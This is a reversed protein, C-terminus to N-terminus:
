KNNSHKFFKEYINQPLNKIYEVIDKFKYKYQVNATVFIIICLVIGIILNFFSQYILKMVEREYIEYDDIKEIAMIPGFLGKNPDEPDRSPLGYKKALKDLFYKEIILLIYIAITAVFTAVLFVPIFKSIDGKKIFLFSFYIKLIIVSLPTTILAAIFWGSHPYGISLAMIIAGITLCLGILLFIKKDKIFIGYFFAILAAALYFFTCYVNMYHLNKVVKKLCQECDM